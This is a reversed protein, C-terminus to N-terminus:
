KSSVTETEDANRKNGSEQKEISHHVLSLIVLAAAWCVASFYFTNNGTKFGMSCWFVIGFSLVFPIWPKDSM